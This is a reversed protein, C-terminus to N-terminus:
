IKESMANKYMALLQNEGLAKENVSRYISWEMGTAALRVITMKRTQGPRNIREVIQKSEGNSYIPAYFVMVDAETLTLGHAMVKPHVLLVHPDPTERFRAVIEDRKKLPVDGNIVEVTYSKGIEQQLEHIIGKFPVVVIVKASAQSIAALVADVRPKHDLLVYEGTETDRIVGCAIQRLKNLKDAANAATLNGGADSFEIAMKSLMDKYATKQDRTLEVEWEEYTLPPLDICDAKKYRIAPQLIEFARQFGDPKPRWQFQNIQFMTLRRWTGFFQPVTPSGILKALGFADTPSEPCPTGTMLVLRPSQDFLKMALKFKQTQSNKYEAAEDVVVMSLKGSKLDRDIDDKLIKLGDFNIIGIDWSQSYLARRKDAAGHLVVATKHMLLRFSEDRWVRTLTSLPSVILVKKVEGLRQLHDIAWLASATKATGMENLVFCRHNNCIFEATKRQHAFPKYPGPWSYGGMSYNSISM